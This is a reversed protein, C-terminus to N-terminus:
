DILEFNEIENAIQLTNVRCYSSAYKGNTDRIHTNLKKRQGAELLMRVCEENAMAAIHLPTRKMNDQINVDVSDQDLLWKFFAVKKNEATIHLPTRGLKDRCNLDIKPNRALEKAVEINGKQACIILLTNGDKDKTNPDFRDCSTIINLLSLYNNEAALFVPTRGNKDPLNIDISPDKVLYSVIEERNTSAAWHLPTRMDNDRSNIDFSPNYRYLTKLIVDHGKQAAIHIATKGDKDKANINISRRKRVPRNNDLYEFLSKVFPAANKNACLHLITQGNELTLDLKIKPSKVLQMAVQYKVSEIACYLPWKGLRDKANPDFNKQSLIFEVIESRGNIAAIHLPTKRDKDYNNLNAGKKVENKFEETRGKQALFTLTPDNKGPEGLNESSDDFEEDSNSSSQDNQSVSQNTRTNPEFKPEQPINQTQHQDQPNQLPIDRKKIAENLVRAAELNRGCLHLPTNGSSNPMMLDVRQDNGMIAIISVKNERCAYHLPTFGFNDKLNPNIQKSSLLAQVAKEKGQYAAYHLSTMGNNSKLNIDFGKTKILEKISSDRDYQAALMCPTIGEPSTVNPDCGKLILDKMIEMHGNKVAMHIPFYGNKDGREQDVSPVSILYYYAKTAGNEVAWFYPTKGDQCLPNVDCNCSEILYECVYPKDNQAAFHLPTYIRKDPTNIDLKQNTEVLYKVCNINGHQCAFHLANKGNENKDYILDPDEELIRELCLTNDPGMVSCLLATKQDRSRLDVNVRHTQLLYEVTKVDGHVAAFQILSYKNKGAQANLDLMQNNNMPNEEDLKNDAIIYNLIPWKHYRQAFLAITQEDELPIDVTGHCVVKMKKYIEIFFKLSSDTCNDNKITYFIPILFEGQIQKTLNQDFYSNDLFPKFLAVDSSKCANEYPSNKDSIHKEFPEISQCHAFAAEIFKSNHNFIAVEIPTKEEYNTEDLLEDLESNDELSYLLDLINGNQVNKAIEHLVNDNTTNNKLQLFPNSGTHNRTYDQYLRQFSGYNYLHLSDFSLENLIDSNENDDIANERPIGDSDSSNHYADENSQSNFSYDNDLINNMDNMIENNLDYNEINNQKPPEDNKRLELLLFSIFKAEATSLECNDKKQLCVIFDNVIKLIDHKRTINPFDSDASEDNISIDDKVKINTLDDFDSLNESDENEIDNSKEQTKTQTKQNEVNQLKRKLDQITECLDNREEKIKEMEDNQEEFLKNYNIFSDLIPLKFLDNIENLDDPSILNLAHHVITNIARQKNKKYMNIIFHTFEMSDQPINEENEVTSNGKAKIVMEEFLSKYSDIGYKDIIERLISYVNEAKLKVALECIAKFGDFDVSVSQQHIIKLLNAMAEKGVTLDLKMPSDVYKDEYESRFFKSSYLVFYPFITYKYLKGSDLKVELKAKNYLNEGSIVIKTM